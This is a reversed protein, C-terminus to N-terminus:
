GISRKIQYKGEVDGCPDDFLEGEAEFNAIEETLVPVSASPSFRVKPFVFSMDQGTVQDKGEIVVYYDDGTNALGSICTQPAHTYDILISLEQDVAAQADTDIAGGVIAEIGFPTVVYDTDLVYTTLSDASTVVPAVTADPLLNLLLRDAGPKVVHLEDSIAVGTALVDVKGATVIELVKKDSCGFTLSLNAEEVEYVTCYNGGSVSTFNKQAIKNISQDISVDLVNGVFQLEEKKFGPCCDQRKAVSMRGRFLLCCESTSQCPM